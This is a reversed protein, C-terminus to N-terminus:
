RSIVDVASAGTERLERAIANAVDPDNARAVVLSSGEAVQDGWRKGVPDDDQGTAIGKDLSSVLWPDTQGWQPRYVESWAPHSLGEWESQLVLDLENNDLTFEARLNDAAMEADGSHRFLGVITYSM